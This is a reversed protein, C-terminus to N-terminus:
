NDNEKKRDLYEIIQIAVAAVHTIETRVKFIKPGGFKYHLVAQAFEGVEEVLIATWVFLDHNQEGWKIDQRLREQRVEEFIQEMM